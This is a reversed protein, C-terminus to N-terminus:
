SGSPSFIFPYSVFVQGGGRPKPFRMRKIIRNVCTGVTKNKLTNQAIKSTSVAGTGTITWSGLLKGNLKPNKNLEKEYCHKIQNMHRRVVRNIEEKSLSGKTIVKGRKVKIRGKGRGGLNLGGKGGTGRGNGSGMGGIGLSNGGGGGGTGRTGLGGAGGADGTATGSLGGLANNTGGGLGGPGFVNSVAGQPGNLGMAALQDFVLKRDEERKDKDVTPAGDKSAAKDEKPKDKKGFLGEEDKHRGAEKGSLEQKKEIIEEEPELTFQQFEELNAWLDDEAHDAMHYSYAFAMILFLMFLMCLSAIRAYGYDILSLFPVILEPYKKSKQVRFTVNEHTLEGVDSKGVKVESGSVSSGNLYATSGAPVNIIANDGSVSVLNFSSGNEGFGKGSYQFDSGNKTGVVVSDSGAIRKNGVVNSGWMFTVDFIGEHKAVEHSSLKPDINKYKQKNQNM